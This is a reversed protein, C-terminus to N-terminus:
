ENFLEDKDTIFFASRVVEQIALIEERKAKRIVLTSLDM